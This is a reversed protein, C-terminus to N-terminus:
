QTLRGDWMGMPLDCILANANMCKDCFHEDKLKQAKAAVLMLCVHVTVKEQKLM